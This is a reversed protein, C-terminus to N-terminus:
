SKDGEALEAVIQECRAVKMAWDQSEKEKRAARAARANLKFKECAALFVEQFFTNGDNGLYRLHQM